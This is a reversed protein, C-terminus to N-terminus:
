GNGHSDISFFSALLGFQISSMDPVSHPPFTAQIRKDCPYRKVLKCFPCNQEDSARDGIATLYQSHCSSCISLALQPRNRAWIGKIHCVIDFARDFSIRPPQVCHARYAKYSCILSDAPGFGLGSVRWYITAFISAEVKELLNAQHYWEPSDPPRGRPASREDVFFLRVLENHEIGTVHTITKIRAGLEACAKALSLSKIHREVYSIEM